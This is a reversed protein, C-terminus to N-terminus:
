GGLAVTATLRQEARTAVLRYTVSVVAATPDGPDPDVEVAVVSVRPEWDTVAQRVLEALEHRTATTNPEFLYRRLGAGFEALRLREGPETRLVVEICERVNPEGASWAMRGDPGIRPPFAIGQGLLRGQGPAVATV